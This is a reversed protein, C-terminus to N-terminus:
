ASRLGEMEIVWTVLTVVCDKRLAAFRRFFAAWLALQLYYTSSDALGPPAFSSDQCLRRLLLLPEAARV